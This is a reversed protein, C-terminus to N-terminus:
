NVLCTCQIDANAFLDGSLALTDKFFSKKYTIFSLKQLSFIRHKFVFM